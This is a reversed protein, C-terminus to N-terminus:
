GCSWMCMPAFQLTAQLLDSTLFPGRAVVPLQDHLEVDEEFEECWSGDGPYYGEGLQALVITYMAVPNGTNANVFRLENIDPQQLERVWGRHLKALSYSAHISGETSAGEGSGSKEYHARLCGVERLVGKTERMERITRVLQEISYVGDEEDDYAEDDEDDLADCARIGLRCREIAYELVGSALAEWAARRARAPSAFDPLLEVTDADIQSREDRLDRYLAKDWDSNLSEVRASAIDIAGCFDNTITVRVSARFVYGGCRTVTYLRHVGYHGPAHNTYHSPRSAYPMASMDGATYGGDVSATIQICPITKTM